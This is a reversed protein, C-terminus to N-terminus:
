AVQGEIVCVDERTPVIRNLTFGARDFLTAFEDQTREKGGHCMILMNLDLFKAGSPQDGPPIVAECILLKGTAGLQQRCHGLIKLCSADDWDHLIHKLLYADGGAPVSEFFSGAIAQCRDAIGHSALTSACGRIVYDEDFLIGNVQPTQQLITGLMEGYGGGVDVITHFGSFDYAEIIAATEPRSFDNMSQEFIQAAEPNQAFYDFVEVGFRKKFAQQGTQVSYLLDSWSEYHEQEGLMIATARQSLPSDARLYEALPSLGFTRPATETFVGVSALARLLRYLSDEHTHTLQALTQCSQPGSVLRDAIGLKAVVALSQSVWYGSIMQLLQVHPPLSPTM